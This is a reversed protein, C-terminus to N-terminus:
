HRHQVTIFDDDDAATSEIRPSIRLAIGTCGLHKGIAKMQARAQGRVCSRGSPHQQRCQAASSEVGPQLCVGAFPKGRSVSCVVVSARSSFIM